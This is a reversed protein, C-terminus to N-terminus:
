KNTELTNVLDKFAAKNEDNVNMLIKHAELITEKVFDESCINPSLEKLDPWESKSAEVIIFSSTIGMSDLLRIIDSNSTELTPLVNISQKSLIALKALLGLTTSDLSVAESLDLIVNNFHRDVFLKSVALDLATCLTLRVEGTLKLVFVDDQETYQVKGNAQLSM